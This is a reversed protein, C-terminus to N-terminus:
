WLKRLAGLQALRLMEAQFRPGHNARPLKIHCMEHLLTLKAITESFRITPDLRVVIDSESLRFVGGYNDRECEGICGHAPEWFLTVDDPLESNFWARNFALYWRRLQPDSAPRESM